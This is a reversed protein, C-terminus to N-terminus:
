GKSSRGDDQGSRNRTPQAAAVKYAAQLVDYIAVTYFDPYEVAADAAHMDRTLTKNMPVDLTPSYNM